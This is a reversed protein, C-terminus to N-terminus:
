LIAFFSQQLNLISCMEGLNQSGRFNGLICYDIIQFSLVRFGRQSMGVCWDPSPGIMSLLSFLHKSTDVQFKATVTGQLNDEGWLPTTKLVSKISKSQLMIIMSLLMNPYQKERLPWDMSHHCWPTKSVEAYTRCSDWWRNVIYTYLAVNSYKLRCQIRNCNCTSKIIKFLYIEHM